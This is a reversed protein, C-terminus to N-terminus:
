DVIDVPHSSELSSRLDPNVGEDKSYEKDLKQVLDEARLHTYRSLMAPTKHGTITAVEMLQLGKEFLRTTAEHRLDHFRLDVLYHESPHIKADRCELDYKNRAETLARSFVRILGDQTVRFLKGGPLPAPLADLLGMAAKSLPVIRSENNKTDKLFATQKQWDIDQVRLSLIESQRMATEIAFLVVSPIYKNRSKSLEFMLRDLEGAELRRDRKRSPSPMAISRVPNLLGEMQWETRAVTFLHSVLALDLRITSDSVGEARRDDRFKAFDSGRLSALSRSAYPHNLWYNIRVGERHASKKRVTIESRYRELADALTTREAEARSVFVGRIMESEIVKAWAEAEKRTEFTGTQAPFGKRRVQARWQYDGRRTITAM